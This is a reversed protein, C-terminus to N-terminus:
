RKDQTPSSGRWAQGVRNSVPHRHPRRKEVSAQLQAAREKVYQVMDTEAFVATEIKARRELLRRCLLPLEQLPIGYRRILGLDAEIIVQQRSGDQGVVNFCYQRIANLQKFGVLVFEM